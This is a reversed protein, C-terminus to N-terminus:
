RLWKNEFMKLLSKFDIVIVPIGTRTKGCYGLQVEIWFVSYRFNMIACVLPNVHPMTGLAWVVEDSGVVAKRTTGLTDCAVTIQVFWDLHHSLFLSYNFVLLLRQWTETLHHFLLTVIYSLLAKKYNYWSSFQIPYHLTPSQIFLIFVTSFM